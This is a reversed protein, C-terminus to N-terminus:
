RERRCVEKIQAVGAQLSPLDAFIYLYIDTVRGYGSQLFAALHQESFWLRQHWSLSEFTWGLLESELEVTPGEYESILLRARTAIPFAQHDLEEVGDFFIERVQEVGMSVITM